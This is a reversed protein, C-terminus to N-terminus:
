VSAPPIRATTHVSTRNPKVKMARRFRIPTSGRWSGARRSDAARDEDSNVEFVVTKWQPQLRASGFAKTAPRAPPM